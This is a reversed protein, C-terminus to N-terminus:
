IGGDDVKSEQKRADVGYYVTCVRLRMYNPKIYLLSYETVLREGLHVRTMPLVVAPLQGWRNRGRFM